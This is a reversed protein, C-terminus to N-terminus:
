DQRPLAGFHLLEGNLTTITGLELFLVLSRFLDNKPVPVGAILRYSRM